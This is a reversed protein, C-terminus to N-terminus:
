SCLWFPLVVNLGFVFLSRETPKRYWRYRARSTRLMRPFILSNNDRGTEGGVKKKIKKSFVCQKSVTLSVFVCVVGGSYVPQQQVLRLQICGSDPPLLHSLRM